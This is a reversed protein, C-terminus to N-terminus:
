SLVYFLCLNPNSVVREYLNATIRVHQRALAGALFARHEVRCNPLYYDGSVLQPPFVKLVALLDEELTGPDEGDAPGIVCLFVHATSM